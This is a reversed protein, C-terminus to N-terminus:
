FILNEKSKLTKIDIKKIYQVEPLTQLNKIIENVDFFGKEGDIKIFYDYEKLEPILYPKSSNIFDFSRNRLFWFCSISALRPLVLTCTIKSTSGTYPFCTSLTNKTIIIFQINNAPTTSKCYSAKIPQMLQKM